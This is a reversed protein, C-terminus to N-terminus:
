KSVYKVLYKNQRRHVKTSKPLLHVIEKNTPSVHTGFEFKASPVHESTM